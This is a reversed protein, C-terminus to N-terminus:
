SYLLLPPRLRPYRRTVSLPLLTKCSECQNCSSAGLGLRPDRTGGVLGLNYAEYVDEEVESGNEKTVTAKYPDSFVWFTYNGDEALPFSSFINGATDGALVAECAGTQYPRSIFMGCRSSSTDILAQRLGRARM